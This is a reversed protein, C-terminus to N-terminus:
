LHACLGCTLAAKAHHVGAYSMITRERRPGGGSCKIGSRHSNSSAWRYGLVGHEFCGHYVVTARTVTVFPIAKGIKGTLYAIFGPVPRFWEQAQLAPSRV